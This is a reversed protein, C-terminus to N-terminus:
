EGFTFAKVLEPRCEAESCDFHCPRCYFLGCGQPSKKGSM